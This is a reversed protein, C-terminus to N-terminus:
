KGWRPPETANCIDRSQCPKQTSDPMTGGYVELSSEDLDRLTVKKIELKKLNKKM